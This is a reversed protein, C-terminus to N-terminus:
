KGKNDLLPIVLQFQKKQCYGINIPDTWFISLIAGSSVIIHKKILLFTHLLFRDWWFIKMYFQLLIIWWITKELNYKSFYVINNRLDVSLARILTFLNLM